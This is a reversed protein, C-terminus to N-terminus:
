ATDGDDQAAAPGDIGQPLDRRGYVNAIASRTLEDSDPMLHTYTALTFAPDTHGLWEAVTKISVGQNLLTSAFFHRLEHMGNEYRGCPVGSVSLAPKWYNRNFDNAPVARGWMSTVILRASVSRGGPVDWPLSVDHAPFARLHEALALKIPEPLPIERKKDYKPLAFVRKARVTKVQREVRVVGRLFDVDEIALGFCEGQRLGLGAALDVLVRFREPLSRQVAWVQAEPWPVVREKAPRPKKVSKGGFPNKAILGDDQAATFLAAVNGFLTHRYRDSLRADRLARDWGRLTSATVASLQFRGLHPLVRSRFRMELHERSIEDVDLDALWREAYAAITIKGARPDVFTGLAKDVHQRALWDRALKLQGDAFTASVENGEPGILRAKYRRGMGHHATPVRVTKGPRDPDPVVKYWRDQIHGM